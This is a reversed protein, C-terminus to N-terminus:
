VGGSRLFPDSIPHGSKDQFYHPRLLPPLRGHNGNGDGRRLISDFSDGSALDWFSSFVLTSRSASGADFFAIIPWNYGKVMKTGASM